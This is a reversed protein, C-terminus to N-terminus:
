EVNMNTEPMVCKQKNFVKTGQLCDKTLYPGNYNDYRIQIAHMSQPIKKMLRRTQEVKSKLAKMVKSNGVISKKRVLQDRVSLCQYSKQNLEEIVEKGDISLKKPILGRIDTFQM